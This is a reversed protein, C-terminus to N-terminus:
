LLLEQHVHTFLRVVDHVRNCAPSRRLARVDRRVAANERELRQGSRQPGNHVSRSAEAAKLTRDTDRDIAFIVNIDQVRAMASYLAKIAAQLFEDLQVTDTPAPGLWPLEVLRVAESNRTRVIQINGVSPIPTNLHKRQLIESETGNPPWDEDSLCRTTVRNRM